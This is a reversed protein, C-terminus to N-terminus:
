PENKRWGIPFAVVLVRNAATHPPFCTVLTLREDGSDAIWAVVEQDQSEKAPIAFVQAVQYGYVGENTLLEIIQGPELYPLARFISREWVEPDLVPSHGAIVVNRGWGPLGSPAYWGADEVQWTQAPVGENWSIFVDAPSVQNWLDMEPIRIILPASRAPPLPTASSYSTKQSPAVPRANLLSTERSRLAASAILRMGAGTAVLVLGLLILFVSRSVRIM